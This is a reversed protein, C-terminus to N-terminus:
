SASSEQRVAILARAARNKLERIIAPATASLLKIFVAPLRQASFAPHSANVSGSVFDNVRTEFLPASVM